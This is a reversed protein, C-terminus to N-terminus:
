SESEESKGEAALQALLCLETAKFVHEQTMADERRDLCDLILKAFFPYGTKGTVSFHKEGEDTELFVENGDEDAAVNVYKRDEIYGNTGLIFLRGDGWTRLGDPTFWDVRFYNSAGNDAVLSAEGFDELEPHDPHAFNAARASLIKADKAGAYYLFQEIQHSGIDALIGRYKKKEFFWAPRSASSLRHPGMGLVQIVRGIAGQEILEGAFVSGEVHLRESFYVMYKRGTEAAARRAEELHRLSTFPTKDTFYDKGARMVRVGLPGRDCPIAAAAVLRVEPDDLVEDLSRAVRAKPWTKLFAEVKQADPDYVWKIEAGAETLANCQGYIHGHELSVAAVPFEGPKCAPNPRGKPAYHMGDSKQM